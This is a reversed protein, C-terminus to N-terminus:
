DIGDNRFGFAGIGGDALRFGEGGGRSVPFVKEGLEEPIDLRCADLGPPVVQGGSPDGEEQFCVSEGHRAELGTEDPRGGTGQLQGPYGPFDEAGKVPRPLPVAGRPHDEQFEHFVPVDLEGEKFVGQPDFLHFPEVFRRVPERFFVPFVGKM